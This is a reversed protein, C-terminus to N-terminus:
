KFYIYALLFSGVSDYHLWRLLLLVSISWCVLIVESSYKLITSCLWTFKLIRKRNPILHCNNWFKRCIDLAVTIITFQVSWMDSLVSSPLHLLPLQPQCLEAFPWNLTIVGEGLCTNVTESLCYTTVSFQCFPICQVRSSHLCSKSSFINWLLLSEKGEARTLKCPRLAAFYM